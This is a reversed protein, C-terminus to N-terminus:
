SCVGPSAAVVSVRRGCGSWSIRPLFAETKLVVAVSAGQAQEVGQHLAPHRWSPWTPCGM